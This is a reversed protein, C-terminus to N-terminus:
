APEPMGCAVSRLYSPASEGEANSGAFFGSTTSTDPADLEVVLTSGAPARATVPVTVMQLTQPQLTVEASGIQTLNDYTLTDGDLTCLRVTVTSPGLNVAEVGFSVETVEFDDAIAFDSLTFTRLYGNDGTLGIDTACAVTNNPVIEQSDSHTLTVSGEAPDPRESGLATSTPAVPNRSPELGEGQDALTRSSPLAPSTIPTGEVPQ